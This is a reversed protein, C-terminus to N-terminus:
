PTTWKEKRWHGSHIWCRDFGKLTAHKKM